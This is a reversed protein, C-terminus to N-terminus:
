HRAARARRAARLGRTSCRARAPLTDAAAGVPNQGVKMRVSLRTRSVRTSPPLSTGANTAQRSISSPLSSNPSWVLCGQCRAGFPNRASRTKSSVFKPPLSSPQIVAAPRREGLWRAIERWMQPGVGSRRHYPLQGEGKPLAALSHDAGPMVRLTVDRNGARELAARMRPLNIEPVVNRDAGGFFALVPQRVKELAPVPEYRWNFRGWAWAPDDPVGSELVDDPVKLATARARLAAYDAWGEGTASYREALELLRRILAVAAADFGADIMRNVRRTTEQEAPSVAPAVFLVVFAVRPSLTAALPAIWGGQSRGTIGIREPDVDLRKALAEVAAVADDADDRFSHVANGRSAGNGRRDFFFTDTGLAALAAADRRAAERTTWNSGALVVATSHPGDHRNGTRGGAEAGSPRPGARLLTGALEVGHSDFRIEEETFAIRVGHAVANPVAGGTDTWLMGAVAGEADRELSVRASVPTPVYQAAGVWFADRDTPFLTGQRGSALDAYTLEGWSRNEIVVLRDDPLRYTGVADAFVEPPIRAVPEASRMLEFRGPRGAWSLTGTWREGEVEGDLRIIKGNPRVREVVVRPTRALDISAPLDYQKSVLEDFRVTGGGGAEAVRLRLPLDNGDDLYAWGIWDGSPVAASAARTAANLLLGLVCVALRRRM